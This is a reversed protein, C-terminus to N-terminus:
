DFVEQLDFSITYFNDIPNTGASLVQTINLPGEFRTTVTGPENIHTLEFLFSEFGGSRARYFEEIASKVLGTVNTYQVSFTRKPRRSILRRKEYGAQMEAREFNFQERFQIGSRDPKKDAMSDLRTIVEDKNFSTISLTNIGATPAVTTNSFPITGAADSGIKIGQKGLTPSPFTYQDQNQTIGGITVILDDKVDVLSNEPLAFHLQSGNIAYSNGSVSVNDGSYTISKVDPFSRLIEFSPPIRIVRLEVVAGSAPADNFTITNKLSTNLTNTNSLTYTDTSQPIGDFVAVVEGVKEAAESLNFSTQSGGATYTIRSLAPILLPNFTADNPYRKRAM